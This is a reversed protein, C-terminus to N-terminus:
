SPNGPLFSVIKSGLAQESSGPMNAFFGSDDFLSFLLRPPIRMSGASTAIMAPEMADICESMPLLEMTQRANIITLSM